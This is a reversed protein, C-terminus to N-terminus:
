TESHCISPLYVCRSSECRKQVLSNNTLAFLPPSPSPSCVTTFDVKRLLKKEHYKLARVPSHDAFLTLYRGSARLCGDGTSNIQSHLRPSLQWIVLRLISVSPIYCVWRALFNELLSYQVKLSPPPESTYACYKKIDFHQLLRALRKFGITANLLM